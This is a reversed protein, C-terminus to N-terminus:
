SDRPRPSTYLLCPSVRVGPPEVGCRAECEDLSEYNNPAQQCGGYVFEECRHTRINHYFRPFFGLCRGPSKDNVCHEVYNRESEDGTLLAASRSPTM